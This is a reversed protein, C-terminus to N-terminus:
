RKYCSKRPHFKANDRRLALAQTPVGTLPAKILIFNRCSHRDSVKGNVTMHSAAERAHHDRVEDDVEPVYIPSLENARMLRM